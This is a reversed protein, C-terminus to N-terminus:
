KEEFRKFIGYDFFLYTCRRNALAMRYIALIQDPTLGSAELDSLPEVKSCYVWVERISAEDGSRTVNSPPGWSALVMDNTMGIYLRGSLIREKAAPPLEPHSAVYSQRRQALALEPPQAYSNYSTTACGLSLCLLVILSLHRLKM